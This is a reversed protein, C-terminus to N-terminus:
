AGRREAPLVPVGTAWTEFAAALTADAGREHWSAPPKGHPGWYCWPWACLRSWLKRGIPIERRVTREGNVLVRGLPDRKTYGLADAIADYSQGHLDRMVAAALRRTEARDHKTLQELAAPEYTELWLLVRPRLYHDSDQHYQRRDQDVALPRYLVPEGTESDPVAVLEIRPAINPGLRWVPRGERRREAIRFRLEEGPLPPAFKAGFRGQEPALGAAVREVSSGCNQM